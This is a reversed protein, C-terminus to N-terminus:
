VFFSVRRKQAKSKKVTGEGEERGGGDKLELKAMVDSVAEGNVSSGSQEGPISCQLAAAVEAKHRADLEEELAKIEATVELLCCSDGPSSLAGALLLCM